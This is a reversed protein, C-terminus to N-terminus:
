EMDVDEKALAAANAAAEKADATITAVNGGAVREGKSNIRILKLTSMSGFSHNWKRLFEVNKEDNLDPCLFGKKFEEMELDRKGQLILQKNTPPRNARRKKKLDDLEADDRSIFQEIFIITQDNSFARIDKFEDMNIVDQIFKVRSLENSKRENHAKKKSAIKGERLTARNLQHFKRGKPHVTPKKGNANMNKKIKSLSKSVPM